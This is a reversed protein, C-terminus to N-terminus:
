RRPCRRKMNMRHRACMRRAGRSDALRRRAFSRERRCCNPDRAQWYAHNVLGPILQPKALAMVRKKEDGSLTKALANRSATFTDLPGKYLEDIRSDLSPM